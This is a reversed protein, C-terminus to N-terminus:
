TFSETFSAMITEQLMREEEDQLAQNVLELLNIPRVMQEVHNPEVDPVIEKEESPFVHRCLPCTNNNKLWPYIGDCGDNKIHFYHNDKNDNDKNGNDKNDNGKCPLEIIDESVKLDELCVGCTLNQLVMEDTVKQVSLSNIFDKSCVQKYKNQQNFSQNQVQEEYNIPNTHISSFLNMFMNENINENYNVPGEAPLPVIDEMLSGMLQSLSIPIPLIVDIGADASADTTDDATADATADATDANDISDAGIDNDM